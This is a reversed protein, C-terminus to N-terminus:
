NRVRRSIGTKRQSGAQGPMPTEAYPNIGLWQGMSRRLQQDGMTRLLKRRRAAGLTLDGNWIEIMPRITSIVYLDVDVGPNETCLDVDDDRVVLWWSNLDQLDEFIFCIVTEGGPLADTSLRRQFERMLFEVDLQDDSLQHRVWRMGWTALHEVLPALEKGAPTLHYVHGRRGRQRKRLVIGAQELQELRRTLVSPSIRSLGRQLDSFRTTGLLLERLILITWREGIVESAKAVPCFQGYDAM